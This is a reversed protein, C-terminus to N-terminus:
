ALKTRDESACDEVDAKRRRRNYERLDVWDSMFRPAFELFNNNRLGKTSYGRGTVWGLSEASGSLSMEVM